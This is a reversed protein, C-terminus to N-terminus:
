FIIRIGLFDQVFTGTMQFEGSLPKNLFIVTTTSLSDIRNALVILLDLVARALNHREIIKRHAYATNM